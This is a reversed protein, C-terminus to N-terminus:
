QVNGLAFIVVVGGGLQQLRQDVEVRTPDEVLERWNYRDPVYRLERGERPLGMADARGQLIPWARQALLMLRGESPWVPEIVALLAAPTADPGKLPHM